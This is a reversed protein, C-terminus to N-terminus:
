KTLKNKKEFTRMGGIGLLGTVVVMLTENDVEPPEPWGKIRSYWALMPKLMVAYAFGTGGVWGFFPRWGAVWISPHQAEKANIELQALVQSLEGKMADQLFQAEAKRQEEKDPIFRGILDKGLELLPGMFLPNM